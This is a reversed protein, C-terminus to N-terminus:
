CGGIAQKAGFSQNTIEYFMEYIFNVNEENTGATAAYLMITRQPPAQVRISCTEVRQVM